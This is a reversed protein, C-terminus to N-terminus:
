VSPVTWTTQFLSFGEEEELGTEEIREEDDDLYEEELEALVGGNAFLKGRTRGTNTSL